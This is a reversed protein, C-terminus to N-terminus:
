FSRPSISCRLNIMGSVMTVVSTMLLATCNAQRAGDSWLLWGQRQIASSWM